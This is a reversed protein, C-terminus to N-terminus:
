TFHFLFVLSIDYCRMNIYSLKVLFEVYARDHQVYAFSM